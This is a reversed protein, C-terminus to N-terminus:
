AAADRSPVRLPLRWLWWAVAACAATPLWRWPSVLVWWAALASIAMMLTAFRKVGLSVARHERWDRLPPGFRPHNLMWRECRRCSRSFCMAALLLFPVTPLLPLFLGILGLLMAIAGGTFWLARRAREGFWVFGPQLLASRVANIRNVFPRPMLISETRQLGPLICNV